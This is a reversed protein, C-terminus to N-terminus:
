HGANAAGGNLAGRPLLPAPAAAAAAGAAFPWWRRASALWCYAILLALAGFAAAATRLAAAATPKLPAWPGLWSSHFTAAGRESTVDAEMARAEDLRAAAAARARAAADAQQAMRDWAAGDPLAAQLETVTTAVAAAAGAAAQLAATMAARAAAIDAAFQAQAADANPGTASAHQRTANVFAAAAAAMSAAAAAGADLAAQATADNWTPATADPM